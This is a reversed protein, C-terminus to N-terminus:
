SFSDIKIRYALGLRLEIGFRKLVFAFLLGLENTGNVQMTIKAYCRKKTTTDISKKPSWDSAVKTLHHIIIFKHEQWPRNRKRKFEEVRSAVNILDQFGKEAFM